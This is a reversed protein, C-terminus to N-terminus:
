WLSKKWHVQTCKETEEERGRERGKEESTNGKKQKQLIWKLREVKRYVICSASSPLLAFDWLNAVTCDYLNARLTERTLRTARFLYSRLRPSRCSRPIPSVCRPPRACHNDCARFVVRTKAFINILFNSVNTRRRAYYNAFRWKATLYLFECAQFQVRLKEILAFICPPKLAEDYKRILLFGATRYM